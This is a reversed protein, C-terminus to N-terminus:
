PLNSQPAVEQWCARRGQDVTSTYPRDINCHRPRRFQVTDLANCRSCRYSSHPMGFHSVLGNASCKVRPGRRQPYNHIPSHHHTSELSHHCTRAMCLRCGALLLSCRVLCHARGAKRGKPTDMRCTHRRCPTYAAEPLIDQQCIGKESAPGTATLREGRCGTISTEKNRMNRLSPM